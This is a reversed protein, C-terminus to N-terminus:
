IFNIVDNAKVNSYAEFKVWNTFYDTTLLVFCKGGKATPLKGIINLGWKVFPWPSVVAHWPESHQYVLLAQKQCKKYSKAYDRADQMM